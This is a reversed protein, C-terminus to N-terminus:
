IRARRPVAAHKQLTTTRLGFVGSGRGWFNFGLGEVRWGLGKVGFGLGWIGFKLWWVRLWLGEVGPELGFDLGGFGARWFCAEFGM